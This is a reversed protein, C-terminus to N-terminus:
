NSKALLYGGGHSTLILRPKSPNQELKRRLNRIHVKIAEGAEPFDAGWMIKALSSNSVALGANRMLQAIILSEIHSLKVENEGQVLRMSIPDFHLKGCIIPDANRRANRRLIGQIRALLELHKFPKIVYDEAGLELCRVIDDEDSRATLVLVPVSSFSQIRKLVEFGSIDTLGIDLIIFDPSEEEILRIGEEGLPSSIVKGEPWRMELSLIISEVIELDDEIILIKPANM